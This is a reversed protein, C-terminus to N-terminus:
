PALLRSKTEIILNGPSIQLAKLAEFGGAEKVEQADFVNTTELEEIGGREFQRAMAYLVKEAKGPLGKLWQRQKYAFAAAREARSHAVTGYALEALVDYLDCAEQDRLYRLLRVSAGDGPLKELLERRRDPWIWRSRLEDLCPAVETLKEALRQEYEEIPMLSERGDQEVVIARGEGMIRVVFGEVRILNSEQKRDHASEGKKVYELPPQYETSPHGRSEFSHGFLRTANTYDYIRFMLKSGRPEGTRTGRGVRQYFEIPSQLYQFFVVNELNPIDVGTSLLDVTAAIFHSSKSGRLDPVTKEASPHLNPNGTCQFAYNDVSWENKERCWKQYLNNMEHTVMTAHTDRVCFIITKQLPGGTDLLHKFLDECMADVRDPLMLKEEYQQATYQDQLKGPEVCKGTFPDTATRREIDARTITTKDLDPKRRIVESAALYGDEQGMWMPYEYVPQGFYVINHNTIEEDAKFAPDEIQGGVVIRPTATLGIHVAMPNDSLVISWKGWASRHCEDIVIHSFTGPPYNERWFRPEKDTDIINLTQYSAIIIRANTKPDDSTAIQANDGFVAHMKSWGQTRLEDRDCVFLAKTLQGSKALKHLLQAAIITKGTGTALSLLIRNGGCAIKEFTARIAADQFYWRAAEGGKYPEFLVKANQSSLSFGMAEEYKSRLEAPTPFNELPLHDIVQGTFEDWQSYLYGNSSFVFPVNFRQRYDQAQQIGLAPLETEKKAELIGISLPSKGLEAPLCLLYDVRGKGKRPHGAIIEVHGVTREVRILDETWGRAHIKPNLLERRTLEENRPM